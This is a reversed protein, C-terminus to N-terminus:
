NAAEKIFSNFLFIYNCLGNQEREPYYIFKNEERKIAFNLAQSAQSVPTLQLNQSNTLASNLKSLSHRVHASDGDPLSSKSPSRLASTCKKNLEAGKSWRM